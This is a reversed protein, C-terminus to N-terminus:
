IGTFIWAFVYVWRPETTGCDACFKNGAHHM